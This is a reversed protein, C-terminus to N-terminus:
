MANCGVLYFKEIVVATVQWRRSNSEMLVDGNTLCPVKTLISVSPDMVAAM